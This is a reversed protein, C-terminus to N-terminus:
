SEGDRVRPGSGCGARGHVGVGLVLAAFTATVILMLRLRQATMTIVPARAADGHPTRYEDDDIEVEPSANPWCRKQRRASSASAQNPHSDGTLYRIALVIHTIVLASFVVVALTM